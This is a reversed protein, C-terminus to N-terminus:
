DNRIVRLSRIIKKIKMLRYLRSMRMVSSIKSVENAAIKRLHFFREFDLTSTYLNRFCCCNRPSSRSEWGAVLATGDASVLKVAPNPIPGPTGEDSLDGLFQLACMLFVFILIDSWGPRRVVCFGEAM